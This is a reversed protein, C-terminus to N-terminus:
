LYKQYASILYLSSIILVNVDFHILVQLIVQSHGTHCLFTHRNTQPVIYNYQQLQCHIYSTAIQLFQVKIYGTYKNKIVITSMYHLEFPYVMNLRKNFQYMSMWLVEILTCCTYETLGPVKFPTNHLALTLLRPFQYWKFHVFPFNAM